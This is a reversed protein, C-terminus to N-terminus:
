MGEGGSPMPPLKKGSKTYSPQTTPKKAEKSEKAEPAKPAPAPAPKPEAKAAPKPAPAPAPETKVVAAPKAPEEVKKAAPAPAAAAPKLAPTPAPAAVPKAAPAAAPAPAVVAKPAPTAPAPAPTAVPETKTVPAPTTAAPESASTGGDGSNKEYAEVSMGKPPVVFYATGSPQTSPAEVVEMHIVLFAEDHRSRLTPRYYVIRLDQKGLEKAEFEFNVIGFKPQAKDEKLQIFTPTGVQEIIPKAGPKYAWHYGTYPNTYLNVNFHQGQAVQFTGLESETTLTFLRPNPERYYPDVKEAQCGAALFLGATMGVVGVLQIFRQIM